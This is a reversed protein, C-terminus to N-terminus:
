NKKLPGLAKLVGTWREIDERIYTAFDAPSGGLIDIGQLEFAKIVEPSKLAENAAASLKAVIEPPTNAPALLGIWVGGEIGHIGAEDLTPVDPLIAARTRQAVAVARLTGAKIQPAVSIAVNFAVNVRGALLDTV